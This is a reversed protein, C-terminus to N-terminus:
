EPEQELLQDRLGGVYEALAYFQMAVLELTECEAEILEDYGDPADIIIPEGHEPRLEVRGDRHLLAVHRDGVQALWNCHTTIIGDASVNM